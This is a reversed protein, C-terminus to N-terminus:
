KEKFDEFGRAIMIEIHEPDDVVQHQNWYYLKGEDCIFGYPKHLVIVAPRLEQDVLTFTDQVVVDGDLTTNVNLVHTDNSIDRSDIGNEVEVIPSSIRPKRGRRKIQQEM